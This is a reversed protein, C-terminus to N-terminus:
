SASSFPNVPVTCRTAILMPASASSGSWRTEGSSQNRRTIARWYRGASQLWECPEPPDALRMTVPLDATAPRHREGRGFGAIQVSLDLVAPLAAGLGLDIADSTLEYELSAFGLV